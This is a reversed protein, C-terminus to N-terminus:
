PRAVSTTIIGDRFAHEDRALATFTALAAAHDLVEVGHAGAPAGRELLIDVATAAGLGTGRAMVADDLITLAGLENGAASTIVQIATVPHGAPRGRREYRAWLLKWLFEAPQVPTGNIDVQLDHYGFGIRGLTSFAANAWGPKLAGKCRAHRLQPFRRSLTLPEPHATDYAETLGLPEPFRYTAATAPVYGPSRQLRGHQWVPCPTVAMHLMHRLPALGGPDPEHVVWVVQVEDAEPHEALLRGAMWNSVGPSLGAGTLLPIGARSAEGDLDLIAQTTEADDAIDVYPVGHALAARAARDSGTFFPGALNLIVSCGSLDLEDTLLDARCTSVRRRDLAAAEALAGQDRDLVRFWDHPRRRLLIRLASRGMHGAGLVAITKEAV